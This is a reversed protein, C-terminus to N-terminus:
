TARILRVQKYFFTQVKMKISRELIVHTSKTGRWVGANGETLTQNIAHYKFLMAAYYKFHCAQNM